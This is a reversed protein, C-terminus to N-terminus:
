GGTRRRDDRLMKGTAEYQEELSKLLPSGGSPPHQILWALMVSHNLLLQREVETLIM